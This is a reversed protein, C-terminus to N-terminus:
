RRVQRLAQEIDAWLDEPDEVGVSLRVLGPVIGHANLDHSYWTSPDDLDLGVYSAIADVAAECTRPDVVGEVVLYGDRLFRERDDATVLSM